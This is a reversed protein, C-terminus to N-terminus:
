NTVSGSGLPNIPAPNATSGMDKTIGLARNKAEEAQAQKFEDYFKARLIAMPDRNATAVKGGKTVYPNGLAIERDLFEILDEDKTIFLYDSFRIRRGTTSVMQMSVRSSNYTQYEKPADLDDVNAIPATNPVNVLGAAKKAEEIKAANVDLAPPVSPAKAIAPNSASNSKTSSTVKNDSM